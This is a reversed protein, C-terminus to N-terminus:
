FQKLNNKGFPYKKRRVSEKLILRVKLCKSRMSLCARLTSQFKYMFLLLAATFIKTLASIKVVINESLILHDSM